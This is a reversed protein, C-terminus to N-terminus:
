MFNGNSEYHYMDFEEYHEDRLSPIYRLGYEVLALRGGSRAAAVRQLEAMAAEFGGKRPYEDQEPEIYLRLLSESTSVLRCLAPLAEHGRFSHSLRLETVACAASVIGVLNAESVDSHMVHLSRLGAALIRALALCGESSLDVRHLGLHVLPVDRGCACADAIAGAVTDGVSTLGMCFMSRVEVHTLRHAMAHLVGPRLTCRDGEVSQVILERVMCGPQGLAEELAACGEAGDRVVAVIGHLRPSLVAPMYKVAAGCSMEYVDDGGNNFRLWVAPTRPPKQDTSTLRRLAGSVVRSMDLAPMLAAVADPDTEHSVYFEEIRTGRRVVAASLDEAEEATISADLRICAYTNDQTVRATAYRICRTTMM